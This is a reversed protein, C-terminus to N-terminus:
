EEGDESFFLTRLFGPTLLSIPNVSVDLGSLPGKVTFAAAIVGQGSGGTIVDGLLPISGIISNMFSFPVLTGNLNAESAGLDVRGDLNIGVVSGAARVDRLDLKEGHWLYYGRLHDFSAEGTIMDLFGFPSVASLLRALVPLDSVAFSEIKIKGNVAHPNDDSGEGNIEVAGGMVGDTFGLGKLATGFDDSKAKFVSRGNKQELKVYVPASSQAVGWLDIDRWGEQDRRAHGSVSEMFGKESTYLKKLKVDYTKARPQESANGSKSEGDEFGSIDFSEGEIRLTVPLVPDAPREYLVKANSRGVLFPAASFSLMRGDARDVVAKAKVKIGHGRLEITDFSLNKGEELRLSFNAQAAVGAPKKWAIAPVHAAVQKLAVAGDVKSLGNGFGEYEVTVPASGDIAILSGLGYFAGWQEDKPAIKVMGKHLPAGDKPDFLSEWVIQAPVQNLAVPGKLSFGDKSVRLELSGQSLVLGTILKQAGFGKIAAQAEVEVDKLLLADLMPMRLTLTGEISGAADAPDLGIERAYGLPPSDLLRLVADVPGVIKAPIAIHQTDQQFNTMVITFPLLKISGTHGGEIAVEMHDLDFTASAAADDVPPMGDLYAVRMGAAKISGTGSVLTVAGWDDPDIRGKITVDGHQFTGKSMNRVIWVRADPTVPLPWLADFASVPLGDLALTATFDIDRKKRRAWLADDQTSLATASATASLVVGNLEARAETIEFTGKEYRAEFAARGVALPKQWLSPVTLSGGGGDIRVHALTIALARDTEVEIAGSAPFSAGSLPELEPGFSSFSALSVNKFSVSLKHRKTERDFGYSVETSATQGEKSRVLVTARARAHAGKHDLTIEPVDIDWNKQTEQDHVSVVLDKIGVIHEASANAVEEGLARLFSFVDAADPDGGLGKSSAEEQPAGFSLRGNKDRVLWIRAKDAALFRPLIRGRLYGGLSLKLSASPFAMVPAGRRDTLRIDQCTLSLVLKKNDWVVSSDGIEASTDPVFREFVSEIVTTLATTAMPGDLLRWAVGGVGLMLGVVLFAMLKFTISFFRAMARLIDAGFRETM